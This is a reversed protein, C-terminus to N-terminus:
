PLRSRVGEVGSRVFREQGVDLGYIVEYWPGLQHYFLSRRRVAADAGYARAVAGAVEAPTGNLCWALDLAPDGVRADSWDIVGIVRGRCCLVHAPGLDAHLLTPVFELTGIRAFLTEAREREGTRLLPFVRRRFDDCLQTFHDRWVAADFCPVGLARARHLPFGHLAGLFRGLDDGAREGIGGTAPSGLLKRYGACVLGDRAILEFHPIAVPLTPALEPLLATEREIWREVEPRRPFRVIWRDDLDLVLSDWGDEVVRVRRFELDPFCARLTAIPDM